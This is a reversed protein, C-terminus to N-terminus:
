AGPTKTFPRDGGGSISAGRREPHTEANRVECPQLESLQGSRRQTSQEVAQVDLATVQRPRRDAAGSGSSMMVERVCDGYDHGAFSLRRRRLHTDALEQVVIGGVALRRGSTRWGTGSKKGEEPCSIMEHSARAPQSCAQCCFTVGQSAPSTCGANRSSRSSRQCSTPTGRSESLSPLARTAPQPLTLSEWRESDPIGFNQSALIVLAAVRREDGLM